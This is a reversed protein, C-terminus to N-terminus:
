TLADQIVAIVSNINEKTMATGSPLCVGTEFMTNAREGGFYQAGKFVPQLHMPKWIPRAEINQAELAAITRSPGNEHKDPDLFIVSLWRNSKTGPPEELFSIGPLDKLASRYTNFIERKRAVRKELVELQGVGIAACINSLRYNYGIMEHEYHLAPEKAQTALKVANQIAQGNNSALAGGGSTTIIKNGNFSYTAFDAGAGAPQGAISSGLSEASDCILTVDFRECIKRARTVDCPHGYLDTLILAKPLTNNANARELEQEVLDLDILSFPDVDFFVPTASQYIIPSVGGIFTLTSSWVRDGAQVYALRLALHIAATGSALAAVNSFGIINALESEFRSLMPGVPAIYNSAFAENVLEQERGSMHPASLFIRPRKKIPKESERNNSDKNSM